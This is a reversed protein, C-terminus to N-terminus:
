SVYGISRGGLGVGAWLLLSVIAAVKRLAPSIRGEESTAVKRHITFTFILALLLFFMKFRFGANGYM